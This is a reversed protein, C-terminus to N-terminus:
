MPFTERAVGEPLTLQPQSVQLTRRVLRCSSRRLGRPEFGLIEAINQRTYESSNPPTQAHLLPFLGLILGLIVNRAM